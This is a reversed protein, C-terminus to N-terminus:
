VDGPKWLTEGLRGYDQIIKPIKRKKPGAVCRVSPYEDTNRLRLVTLVKPQILRQQLPQKLADKTVTGWTGTASGLQSM